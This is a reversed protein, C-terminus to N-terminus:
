VFITDYMKDKKFINGKFIGDKSTFDESLLNHVIVFGSPSVRDFIRLFAAKKGRFPAFLGAKARLLRAPLM